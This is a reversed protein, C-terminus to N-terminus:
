GPRFVRSDFKHRAEDLKAEADATGAAVATAYDDHAQALALREMYNFLAEERMLTWSKDAVRVDQEYATKAMDFYREAKTM